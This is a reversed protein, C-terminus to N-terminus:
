SQSRWSKWDYTYEDDDNDDGNDDDRCLSENPVTCYSPRSNLALTNDQYTHTIITTSLRLASKEGRLSKQEDEEEDEEEDKEEDKTQLHLDRHTSLRTTGEDIRLGQYQGVDHTMEKKM